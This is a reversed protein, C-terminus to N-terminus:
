DEFDSAASSKFEMKEIRHLSRPGIKVLSLDFIAVNKGSGLRSQYMLGDCFRSRLLEAIVQTPAYDATDDTPSVPISFARHLDTWLAPENRVFEYHLGNGGYPELTCDVVKLPRTLRVEAVTVHAGLWPRVEGM